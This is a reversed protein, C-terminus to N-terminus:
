LQDLLAPAALKQSLYSQWDLTESLKQTLIPLIWQVTPLLKLLHHGNFQSFFFNRGYLIALAKQFEPDNVPLLLQNLNNRKGLYLPAALFDSNLDFSLSKHAKAIASPLSLACILGKKELELLFKLLCLESTPLSFFAKRESRLSETLKQPLHLLDAPNGFDFQLQQANQLWLPHDATRLTLWKDNSELM